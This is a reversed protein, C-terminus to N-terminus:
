SLDHPSFPSQAVKSTALSGFSSTPIICKGVRETVLVALLCTAPFCSLGWSQRLDADEDTGWASTLLRISSPYERRCCILFEDDSLDDLAFFYRFVEEAQYSPIPQFALQPDFTEKPSYDAITPRLPAFYVHLWLQFVWLFM